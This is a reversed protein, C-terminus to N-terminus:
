LYTYAGRKLVNPNFKCEIYTDGASHTPCSSVPTPVLLPNGVMKKKRFTKFLISSKLPSVVKLTTDKKSVMMFAQIEEYRFAYKDRLNCM